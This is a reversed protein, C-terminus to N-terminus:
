GGPPSPEAAVAGVCQGAERQGHGREHEHDGHEDRDAGAERHEQDAQREQHEAHQRRAAEGVELSPSEAPQSTCAITWGSYRVESGPSPARRAASWVRAHGALGPEVDDPRHHGDEGGGDRPRDGDGPPRGRQAPRRVADPLLGDGAAGVGDGQGRQEAEAGALLGVDQHDARDAHEGQDRQRQGQARGGSSCEVSARSRSHPRASSWCSTRRESAPRAAPRAASASDSRRSSRSMWSPGWCRSTRSDISRPRARACSSWSGSRARAVISPASVWVRSVTSSSRDSERPM